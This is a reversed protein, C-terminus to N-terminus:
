KTLLRNAQIYDMIKLTAGKNLYVFDKAAKGSDMIRNSVRLLENVIQELEVPTSISYAAELEILRKAEEFKDYAPGFIVPKGYVAAELTNHIGSENFGGGIYVITAYKYLASLKGINDVILVNKEKLIRNNKEAASYLVADTFKKQVDKINSEHIEHPVFIFKLEPHQQVYHIWQFEDEPWTSGCVIVQANGCFDSIFQPLDNTSEAIKIVRDFRTDGSVSVNKIGITQLLKISDVSQVFIETFFGLLKKWLGGYWKFFPQSPRFNAAVLILPINQLHLQKLIHYWYDYKVWIVLTPNLMQVLKRANRKNDIPLYYVYDAGSYNKRVEYGSPSFFSLVVKHDPYNEKIAELLPRGQEFEGLSACHMWVLKGKNNGIELLLKSQWKKRGEVWLRAKDNWLSAIKISM